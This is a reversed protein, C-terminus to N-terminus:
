LFSWYLIVLVLTVEIFVIVEVVIFVVILVIGVVSIVIGVLTNRKGLSRRLLKKGKLYKRIPRFVGGTFKKSFGNMSVLNVMIGIKKM